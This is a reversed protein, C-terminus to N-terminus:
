AIKAGGVFKPKFIAVLSPIFVLADIMNLLMLLGLLLGMEAQFKVDVFGWFIVGAILTTATFIIAKGTTELARSNAINYNGSTKYEESIRAMLYIGYDIGIGVAIAAVPLSNINLDIGRVYMFVESLVQSIALPIILIVGAMFSRFSLACLLFVATFVVALSVWYSYEVEQNVASLIGMLGGALRFKVKDSPNAEIFESAKSLSRKISENNYGKYFCTITGNTWDPDIWRDMEGATSNSQVIFGMEGLAKKDKPIKEWKPHGEHFMRNIRKVTNTFTLTGTAGAETEMFRQFNEMTQLTEYNKLAGKEKGEAIIVLQTAGVFNSNFFRFSENYPHDPFLTAAGAETNGVKLKLAYHGGVTLILVVLGLVVWRGWGLSPKLLLRAIADYLKGRSERELVSPGPPKVFSLLIPGLTPVSVVITLIWFSAFIGLNRMLPITAVSIMLIGIADTVISLTAPVFLEGYGEVIAKKQEGLRLYEEHYRAMCQVSHSIARATIILPVVLILPDLAYGLMSAFGLGWLASLAASVSPFVVGQWTRFYYFLLGAMVVLTLAFVLYIQSALSYIYGYLAPYGTFYIRTNEDEEAAKLEQLREHLLVPDLGEEWFGAFIGATKDDPSVFFGRIGENTYINNKMRDLGVQETPLGPFMVPEMTIGWASVQINKLKPHTISIVQLADCGPTEILRKTIRDIKAITELNFIDGKKAEVACVLVNASGFMTRYENYLQIYPHNPPYLSFFDTAIRLHYAKWGFFVSVLAIALLVKLRHHLIFAVYRQVIKDRKGM